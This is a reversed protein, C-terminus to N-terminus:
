KQMRKLNSLPVRTFRAVQYLLDLPVREFEMSGKTSLLQNIRGPSLGLADALQARSKRGERLAKSIYIAADLKAQQRAIWYDDPQQRRASGAHEQDSEHQGGSRRASATTTVSAGSAAKTTGSPQPHILRLHAAKNRPM